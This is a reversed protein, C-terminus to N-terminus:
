TTFKFRACVRFTFDGYVFIHLLNWTNYNLTMKEYVISLFLKNRMIRSKAHKEKCNQSMRKVFHFGNINQMYIGIIMHTLIVSYLALRTMFHEIAM